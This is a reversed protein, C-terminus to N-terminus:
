TLSIYLPWHCSFIILCFFVFINILFIILFKCTLDSQLLLDIVIIIVDLTDLYCIRFTRLNHALLFCSLIWPYINFLDVVHILGFCLCCKIRKTIFEFSRYILFQNFWFWLFLRLISRLWSPPVKHRLFSCCTHAVRWIWSTIENCRRLVRRYLIWDYLVDTFRIKSGPSLIHQVLGGM